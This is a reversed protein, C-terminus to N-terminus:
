GGDLHLYVLDLGVSTIRKLLGCLAPQDPLHARLTTIGPEILVACDDFGACVEAEAEGAFTIEYTSPQALDAGGYRLVKTFRGTVLM